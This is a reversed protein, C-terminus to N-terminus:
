AADGRRALFRRIREAVYRELRDTFDATERDHCGKCLPVVPYKEADPGYIAQPAVHHFECFGTAGCLYCLHVRLSRRTVPTDDIAVAPVNAAFWESSVAHGSTKYRDKTVPRDCTECWFEIHPSGNEYVRRHWFARPHGELQCREQERLRERWNPEPPVTVEASM